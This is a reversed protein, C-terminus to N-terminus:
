EGFKLFEGGFSVSLLGLEVFEVGVVEVVVVYDVCLCECLVEVCCDFVFVLEM